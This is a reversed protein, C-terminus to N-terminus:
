ARPYEGWWFFGCLQDVEVGYKKAEEMFKLVENGLKWFVQKMVEPKKRMGKFVYRADILVNLITFPGSVELVVHEGMERLEKCALLVEHIRGTSFDIEAFESTRRCQISINKQEQDRRIMEM